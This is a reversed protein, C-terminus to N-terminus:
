GLLALLGMGPLLHGLPEPRNRRPALRAGVAIAIVAAIPPRRRLRQTLRHVGIVSRVLVGLIQIDLPDLAFGLHRMGHPLEDVIALPTRCCRDPSQAPSPRGKGDERRSRPMEPFCGFQSEAWNRFDCGVRFSDSCGVLAFTGM